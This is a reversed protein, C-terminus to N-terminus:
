QAKKLEKLYQGVKDEVVVFDVKDGVKVHDMLSKDRIWFEMIMAPMLDKIEGHDITVWGEKRNIEKLIGTGPYPKDRVTQPFGPLHIQAKPTPTATPTASKEPQPQLGCSQVIVSLVLVLLCFWIPVRRSM